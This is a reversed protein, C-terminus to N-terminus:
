STETPILLTGNEIYVGDSPKAAIVVIFTVGLKKIKMSFSCIVKPHMLSGVALSINFLALPSCSATVCYGKKFLKETDEAVHKIVKKVHFYWRM